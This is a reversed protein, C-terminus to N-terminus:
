QVGIERWAVANTGAVKDRLTVVLKYKGPALGKPLLITNTMTIWDVELSVRKRLTSINKRFFVRSGGPSTLELDQELWIKGGKAIAAGKVQFRLGMHEGARFVGSLNTSGDGSLLVPAKIALGKGTRSKPLYTERKGSGLFFSEVFKKKKGTIRDRIIIVAKYEGKPSGPSLKINNRIFAQDMEEDWSVKFRSANPQKYVIKGNPGVVELDQELWVIEDHGFGKVTFSVWILEGAKFNRGPRERAAIGAKFTVDEISLGAHAPMSTFLASAIMLLLSISMKKKEM